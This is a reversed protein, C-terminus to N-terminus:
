STVWKTYKPMLFGMELCGEIPIQLILPEDAPDAVPQAGKAPPAKKKANKDAAALKEAAEKRKAVEAETELREESAIIKPQPKLDEKIIAQRLQKLLELETEQKQHSEKDDPGNSSVLAM